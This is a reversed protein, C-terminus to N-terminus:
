VGGIAPDIAAARAIAKPISGAVFTSGSLAAANRLFDRRTQMSTGGM